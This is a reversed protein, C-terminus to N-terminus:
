MCVYTRVYVPYPYPTTGGILVANFGSVCVRHIRDGAFTIVYQVHGSCDGRVVCVCVCMGRRSDLQGAHALADTAADIPTTKMTWEPRVLVRWFGRVKFTFASLVFLLMQVSGCQWVCEARPMWTAPPRVVALAYHCFWFENDIDPKVEILAPPDAHRDKGVSDGLGVLFLALGIQTPLHHSHPSPTLPKLHIM